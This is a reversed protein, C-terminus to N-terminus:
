VFKKCYNQGVENVYFIVANVLFARILTPTVGKFLSSIVNENNSELLKYAEIQKLTNEGPHTQILTKLTDFPYTFLWTLVGSLGGAMLLKLSTLSNQEEYYDKIKFYIYFYLGCSYFDRNFTVWFGKYFGTLGKSKYIDYFIEM